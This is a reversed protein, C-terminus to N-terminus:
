NCYIDALSRWTVGITYIVSTNIFPVACIATFFPPMLLVSFDNFQNFNAANSFFASRVENTVWTSVKAFESMQRYRFIDSFYVNGFLLCISTARSVTQPLNQESCFRIPPFSIKNSLTSHIPRLYNIFPVAAIESQNSQIQSSSWQRGQVRQMSKTTRLALVTTDCSRVRGGRRHVLSWHSQQCYL